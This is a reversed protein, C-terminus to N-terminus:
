YTLSFHNSFTSGLHMRNYYKSKFRKKRKDIRIKNDVVACNMILGFSSYFVQNTPMQWIVANGYSAVMVGMIGACLGSAIGELEKDRVKFMILYSSKGVIFFLIFLHLALGVVGLEVWILVYWSDTAISSLYSNPTFQQAKIGGHGLGGGIPRSAMYVKLIRQNALRIQLSPDDPNFASRMRAIQYNGQGISTYKFFVFASLGMIAGLVMILINKRHFVYLAMGAFPVAIAGRTGSLFMGYFGGLSVILFFLKEYKNKLTLAVTLFVVGAYAQNAGFQGADTFFSFVRLKGFLLHTDWAGAELWAREAYDIGVYLQICGKITGLLSFFAWVYLFKRINERSNLFLLGFIPFIVTYIAMPRISSMWAAISRAEPNGIQAMCYFLWIGSLYVVDNKLPSLDPTKPFSHIFIAVVVLGISGDMLTGIPFPMEIYRSFGLLVFSLGITFLFGFFPKEVVVFIFVIAIPITILGAAVFLGYKGIIIALLVSSILITLIFGPRSLSQIAFSRNVRQM